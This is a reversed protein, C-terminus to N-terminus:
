YGGIFDAGLSIWNEVAFGKIQITTLAMIMCLTLIAARKCHIRVVQGQTRVMALAKEKKEDIKRKM